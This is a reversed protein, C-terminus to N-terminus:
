PIGYHAKSHAVNRDVQQHQSRPQEAQAPQHLVVSALQTCSAKLRRRVRMTATRKRRIWVPIQIPHPAHLQQFCEPLSANPLNEVTGSRGCGGVEAAPRSAGIAHRYLEERIIGRAAQNYHNFNAPIMPM